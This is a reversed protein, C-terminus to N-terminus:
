RHARMRKPSRKHLKVAVFRQYLPQVAEICPIKHAITCAHHQMKRVAQLTDTMVQSCHIIRVTTAAVSCRIACELPPLRAAFSDYVGWCARLWPSRIGGLFKKVGRPFIQQIYKSVVPCLEFFKPGERFVRRGEQHGLSTVPRSRLYSRWRM